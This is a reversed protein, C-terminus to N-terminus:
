RTIEVEKYVDLLKAKAPKEFHERYPRIIKEFCNAVASKLDQPHLKGAVFAKEVEEYNEFSVSGGYKTPREVDFTNFEHFIVHKVYELIGNGEVTKEPCWAQSIKEQIQAENDHIFICTWPKSKSMKSAIEMDRKVDEDYGEAIPKVLGPLLHHHLAIPPKWKFKPFVDRALMHAKRQDMGAHVIDINMVKMDACQMPAYIFQAIDSLEKETRGMITLCKTARAVTTHKAILVVKKWYDDNNHYLDSGLVVNIKPSILKFAEKYYEGAKKIKEWSGELKNNIWAHWDALFVTCRCGAELLDRIKFGPFILSGLHFKGSIEYGIYHNPTANTEFLERLEKVTIIEEIPPRLCLQVKDEVNM